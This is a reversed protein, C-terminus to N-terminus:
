KRCPCVAWKSSNGVESRSFQFVTGIFDYGFLDAHAVM